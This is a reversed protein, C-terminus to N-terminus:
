IKDNLYEEILNKFYDLPLLAADQNKAQEDWLRVKIIDDLFPHSKFAEVEDGTMPGGQWILTELSARSLKSRYDPRTAVLYRKADVHKEVTACIRESFGRERLYAAGLGEHNVVGFAGMAETNQEHRLLHGIDHLLGGLILEKGTGEKIAQMACQVMHSTQSVPEGDYDENGYKEFLVMIDNATKYSQETEM